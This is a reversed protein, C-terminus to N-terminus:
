EAKGIARGNYENLFAEANKVMVVALRDDETFSFNMTVNGFYKDIIQVKIRFKRQEDWDASVACDYMNGECSLASVLDSYGTQPFKQFENYGLGFKLKKEGQANEYTMTGCKGEFDFKVYKRGMPNQELIYKRGNIRQCFPSETSGTLSYLKLSAIRNQLKELSESDESLPEGLNDAIISDFAYLLMDRCKTNGQNDSNIIFVLDKEPYCVALQDGMGTFVFGKESKWIQYGYGYSIFKAYGSISNSVRRSTADTLFKENLLQKGNVRGKDMVFRAFILFDRSTCVMGSGGFPNGRSAQIMYADPSFGAEALFKEQLYQVFEKGTLREVLCSMVGSGPSDYDFFTGPIKVGPSSFYLENSDRDNGFFGPTTIKASSMTLMDRITQERLLENVQEGDAYEPFYKVIKDDLSILGDQELFGV